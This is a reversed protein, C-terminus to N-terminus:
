YILQFEPLMTLAWLLDEIGEKRVPAGLVELAAQKETASAPRGLARVYIEDVLAPAPVKGGRDRMWDAAGDALMTALTQGNTLELAQLTTAIPSRQTMVQERNPRGLARTLTDASALVARAELLPKDSAVVMLELATAGGGAELAGTDPGALAKFRTAGAPLEYTIISTAHTGIGVPYTQSGLRLPKQVVSQNIRVQGYGTIASHWKLSTVQTEGTASVLRPNVWDAWDSNGGNGGDTVVLSLYRAGTVDADIEVAGSKMIGSRYRIAAKGGPREDPNLWQVPAGSAPRSWQGTVSSVADVYQEASMRKVAPGAFVFDDSRESKLAMAPLQYARSTVIRELTKKVDYGNKVFDSALWDLVAPDWPRNDMEDVPEVLGRGMLRAWLRNVLTRSLRGNEKSTLIGALQEMRKERPANGDLAGLQPYLFKVPAITGTPKDCRVMELPKDAYIGAMGYADALKWTSVFSDHCSACKLNIGMFVQSISQSAQMPPTQSANVVGRWVIGKVFGASEPTPNVLETVFKDYPKNTRLAQYLWNTIQLRGGDIYGTGSYDNRLLDNWYSLWHETYRQDDALLKRALRERKDPSRDDLFQQLEEPTPLMGILDLYVRRAYTRDDVVQWRSVAPAKTAAVRVTRTVLAAPKHQDFYRQILLDLPSELGSGPKPAPVKPEQLSLQPRWADGGGNAGFSVGQDVWARLTAVEKPSLRAGKPPMIKGPVEGAVLRVLYSAAGKGPLVVPHTAQSGTLVGEKSDIQFGGLHTGNAHCAYCKAKLIPKVDREYSVTATPAVPKPRPAAAALAGSFCVALAGAATFFRPSIPTRMLIM